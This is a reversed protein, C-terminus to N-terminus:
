GYQPGLDFLEKVEGAVDFECGLVMPLEHSEKVRIEQEGFM